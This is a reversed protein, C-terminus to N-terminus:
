FDSMEVEESSLWRWVNHGIMVVCAAIFLLPIM